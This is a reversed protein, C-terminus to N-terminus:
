EVGVMSVEIENGQKLLKKVFKKLDDPTISNLTKEYDKYGEYDATISGQLLSAWYANEKQNEAYKKLMYERVKDLDKQRPGEEAFKDLLDVAMKTLHERKDPDTQFMILLRASEKPVKTITGSTGVGYTGGEKERIEETYIIDLIQKTLSMMLNNKLNHKVKGSFVLYVTASPTAMQKEFVNKHEGKQIDLKADVYKEKKGGSPLGGIYKEILPLATAEDIAGTFIFVFDAANAFREKYIELIRKDDIKEVDAAKMNIARPHNNYLVKTLTDGLASQPDLEQNELMAKMKSKYSAFAEDDLRPATFQLYTLQMLTEFDKPTSNGNMGEMNLSIYPAVGAKKGALVKQLDTTNFSGIGNNEIVDTVQSLNIAEGADYLATGGKSVVSMLIQDAKFDTSKLYVTAGNSLTLQKYGYKAEKTKVVKGGEPEQAILPEDSVKDVYATIDEAAVATLLQAVEAETPYTMGEKEPLMAMVVLNSDSMLGQILQNVLDVPLNPALQNMLAYENEIGPIPENDIFHRVYQQCYSRSKVKARENYASELNTLYEARARVYESETFGHRRARLMERYLLATAEKMQGEKPIIAGSVAGKTKSLFYDEDNVFGEVFPADPQMALEGMRSGMMSAFMAKAYDIILYQMSSKVEAPIAEHKNFIYVIGYQQEKDKALAIIPEKNDAVPYYVREAPNEPMTLDAFISKIKAEVEDVDVDGVVVIGQQDPRYWKEYYDRLAQYPFNDVVEMTGIPMRHGYRNGGPYLTPLLQELMRQQATNRQRWEEHIVGREKDIDDGELLLAGAWDHLIWLCSDIAGAVSVPVNDINYVTEDISTYANLDAGFKVGIGELYKVVGNGPFKETGNFCMHELFHALGRQNDEELVSGVKQAIYFNAQGEPYNNQRIYYTLGNDLKGMRVQPDVPVPPMQQAFATVACVVLTALAMFHKSLKM